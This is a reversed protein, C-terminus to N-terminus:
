LITCAHQRLGTEERSQAPVTLGADPAFLAHWRDELALRDPWENGIVQNLLATRYRKAGRMAYPCTAISRFKKRHDTLNIKPRSIRSNDLAM